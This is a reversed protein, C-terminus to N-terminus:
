ITVSFAIRLLMHSLYYSRVGALPEYKDELYMVEVKAVKDFHKLYSIMSSGFCVTDLIGTFLLRIYRVNTVHWLRRLFKGLSFNFPALWTEFNNSSPLRLCFTSTKPNFLGNKPSIQFKRKGKFWKKIEEKVDRYCQSLTPPSRIKSKFNLTSNSRLTPSKELSFVLINYILFRLELSLKYLSTEGSIAAESDM